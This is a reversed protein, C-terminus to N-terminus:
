FVCEAYLWPATFWTNRNEKQLMELATNYEAAGFEGDEPITRYFYTLSPKCELVLGLVCGLARDRAMEYKLKSVKEIVQTGRTVKSRLDEIKSGDENDSKELLKIELSIEHCKRHLVDIVSTIIIPWRKLVTEYSSLFFPFSYLWLDLCQKRFAVPGFTNHSSFKTFFSAAM